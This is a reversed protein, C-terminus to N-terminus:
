RVDTSGANLGKAATGAILYRPQGPYCLISHILEHALQFTGLRQLGGAGLHLVDVSNDARAVIIQSHSAIHGLTVPAASGRAQVESQLDGTEIDFVTIRGDSYGVLLSPTGSEVLELICKAQLSEAGDIKCFRVEDHASPVKEAM